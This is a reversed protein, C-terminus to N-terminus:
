RCAAAACVERLADFDAAHGLPDVAIVAKIGRMRLSLRM